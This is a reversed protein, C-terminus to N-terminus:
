TATADEIPPSPVRAAASPLSLAQQLRQLRDTTWWQQFSRVDDALRVANDAILSQLTQRQADDSAESEWTRFRCAWAVRDNIGGLRDQLEKIVPYQEEMLLPNIGAALLEVAYRLAKARIRFQHLAANDSSEGPLAAM